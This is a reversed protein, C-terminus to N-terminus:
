SGDATAADVRADRLVDLLAAETARVMRELSHGSLARERGARGLARAERPDDLLRGLAEALGLVDGLPALLGTEGHRVLETLGGVAPAVVPLGCAM